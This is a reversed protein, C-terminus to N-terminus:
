KCFTFDYLACDTGACLSPECYGASKAYSSTSLKAKQEGETTHSFSIVFSTGQIQSLSESITTKCIIITNKISSFENQWTPTTRVLQLFQSCFQENRFVQLSLMELETYIVRISNEGLDRRKRPVELKPSNLSQCNIILFNNM